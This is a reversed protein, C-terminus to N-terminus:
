ADRRRLLWIAVALAAATYVGLAGLGAFPGILSQPEVIAETPEVTRQMAFGGAPTLRMLWGAPAAPLGTAVLLPLILLAIALTIAGASRRLITALALSFVGALALLVASGVLARWVVPDALSMEPIAPPGFGNSRLIPQTILFAVISAILGVVFASCGIVIAKAALVRGRRPSVLFSTHILGRKYESTMFLTGITVIVMIGIMFGVLSIQVVDDGPGTYPAIDGSGSVTFTGGSGASEGAGQNAAVDGAGRNGVDQSSWPTTPQPSAPEVRVNEFTATSVTSTQGVSTSGFQREVQVADPSAVFLGVEVTEPLGRLDVAGIETWSTGDASEYGTVSTGTRTLRLWNPASDASGAVDTTFNSQLRVGHGPTVMMAAYPTGAETSEKIMIGAKAWENSQPTGFSSGDDEDPTMGRGELTRVEAIVSGDGSMPQHVFHFNDEVPAGDPGPVHQEWIWDNEDSGSGSAALLSMLLTLVIASLMGLVWRPVSRLKTWEGRLLQAFSDSPTGAPSEPRYTATTTV